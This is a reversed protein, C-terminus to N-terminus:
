ELVKWNSTTTSPPLPRLVLATVHCCCNLIAVFGPRGGSERSEEKAEGGVGTLELSDGVTEVEEEGIGLGARSSAVLCFM